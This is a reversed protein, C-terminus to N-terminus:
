PPIFRGEFLTLDRHWIAAMGNNDEFPVATVAAVACSLITFLNNFQMTVKTTSQYINL